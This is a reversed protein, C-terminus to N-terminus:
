EKSDKARFQGLLAHVTSQTVHPLSGHLLQRISLSLHLGGVSVLRKDQRDPAAAPLARWTRSHRRSWARQSSILATGTPGSPDPAAALHPGQKRYKKGM